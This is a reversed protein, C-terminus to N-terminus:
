LELMRLKLEILKSEHEEVLEEVSSRNVMSSAGFLRIHTVETDILEKSYFQISREHRGIEDTFM